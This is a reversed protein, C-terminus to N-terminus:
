PSPTGLPRTSIELPDVVVADRAPVLVRASATEPGTRWVEVRLEDGPFVVGTFRADVSAIRAPDGEAVAHMVMRAAFGYTCLGHLIPRDFGAARAFAPDAHLPNSDGTLRYLLAQTAATPECRVDDPPRDFATPALGTGREGGFGGGGRVFSAYTASAVPEGDVAIEATCDVVAGKGKDWVNEV